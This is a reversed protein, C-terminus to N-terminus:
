KILSLFFIPWTCAYILSRPCLKRAYKSVTQGRKEGRGQLLQFVFCHSRIQHTNVNLYSLVTLDTTYFMDKFRKKYKEKKKKKRKPVSPFVSLTGIDPLSATM